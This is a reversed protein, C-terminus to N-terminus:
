IYKCILLYFANKKKKEEQRTDLFFPCVKISRFYPSGHIVNQNKKNYLSINFVYLNIIIQKVYHIEDMIGGGMNALYSIFVPEPIGHLRKYNQFFFELINNWYIRSHFHSMDGEKGKVVIKLSGQLRSSTM